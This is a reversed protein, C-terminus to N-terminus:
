KFRQVTDSNSIKVEFIQKGLKGTKKVCKGSKPNCINEDNCKVYKISKM